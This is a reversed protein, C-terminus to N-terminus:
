SFEPKKCVDKIPCYECVSTTYPSHETPIADSIGLKIKRAASAAKESASDCLNELEDSTYLVGKASLSGDQRYKVPIFHGGRSEDMAGIVDPDDLLIGERIFSKKAESYVDEPSEPIKDPTLEPTKVSMYLVGAPILSTNESAIIGSAESMLKIIRRDNRCLSRLYLLLQLGIGTHPANRVDSMRGTKYDTIRVFINEGSQMLDVRDIRGFIEASTGDELTIKHPPVAGEAYSVPLEFFRPVFKSNKMEEAIDKILLSATNKMRKFFAKQRANTHNGSFIKEIYKNSETETFSDFDSDKASTIDFSGSKVDSCFSEIISHIYNGTDAGRFESSSPERLGLVYKCFYAFACKAYAEINTSSLSIRDSFLVDTICQSIRVTECSLQSGVCSIWRNFKIDESLLAFIKQSIRSYPELAAFEFASQRNLLKDELSQSGFKIVKLTPFAALIKKWVVSPKQQRGDGATDSYTLTLKESPSCAATYFYLQEDATQEAISRMLEIGIEELETIESDSFLGNKSVTAPFEGENCGLLMACRCNDPRILDAAGITVEDTCTPIKGVTVGTLAARLLKAMMDAGTEVEGAVATVCDLADVISNWIQIADSDGFKETKEYIELKTIYQYIATCYERVTTKGLALMLLPDCVTHRAKNSIQLIRSGDETLKDTYGDPNMNWEYEDYFRKGHIRWSTIYGSLVDCEEPTLGTMGTKILTIMDNTKWGGGVAELASIILRVAPKLLIDTRESSFCPIGHKEFVADIIGRWVDMKRVIVFCDRFRGGSRIHKLVEAAAAEAEEYKNRCQYLTINDRTFNNDRNNDEYHTNNEYINYIDAAKNQKTQSSIEEQVESFGFIEPSYSSSYSPSYSLSYSPSYPIEENKKPYSIGARLTRELYALANNKHRLNDALKITKIEECEPYIKRLRIRSSKVSENFLSGAESDQLTVTFNEAQEAIHKLVKYEDSSFGYFSDLFVDTGHFFNFNELAEALRIIDEKPDDYDKKMITNYATLIVSLDSIKGALRTKGESQLLESADFLQSASIGHQKLGDIQETMAYLSSIDSLSISSYYHLLPATESLTRWMVVNKGGQGLYSYSLGGCSRFVRNALRRFSVVELSISPIGKEECLQAMRREANVASQEPVILFATHSKKLANAVLSYLMSSKGSGASGIIQTIM